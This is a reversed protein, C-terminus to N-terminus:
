GVGVGAMWCYFSNDGDKDYAVIYGAPKEDLYAAIILHEKNRYREEFYQRYDTGRFEPIFPSIKIVEEITVERVSIQQNM